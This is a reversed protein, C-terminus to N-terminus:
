GAVGVLPNMSVPHDLCVSACLVPHLFPDEVVVVVVDDGVTVILTHDGFM